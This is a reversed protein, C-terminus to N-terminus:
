AAYLAATNELRELDLLKEFLSTRRKGACDTFKARLEDLALPNQAHGKARSVSPGQLVEGGHLEIRVSDAPSFLPSEPDSAEIIQTRVKPMLAQIPSSRVFDDRLQGLGLQGSAACSAMAFEASFKADLATQPHHHRLMKAQLRGISVEIGAISDIAPKHEAILGLMGDVSRHLAYCVPYRKVNLGERLIRWESGAGTAGDLRARGQPSVARLFGNPHELVDASATLGASALRAAHVGNQAARGVQFPKTMSGFNAIVGAAMSAAIGLASTTRAADLKALKAATAAVAVTGFITTPHWGKGHLKDPERSLLEAWVEYGAVYAAIMEAGSAGVREGEALMAPVLVVSPHGDLAVDDYDLAHAATANLLAAEAADARETSFLLRSEGTAGRTRLSERVIRVVPEDIGAFLVGVCDSSGRKVIEVAPQPLADFGLGAVFEALERTLAM